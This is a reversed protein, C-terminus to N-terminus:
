KNEIMKIYNMLHPIIEKTTASSSLPSTYSDSHKGPFIHAADTLKYRDKAADILTSISYRPKKSSLAPLLDFIRVAYAINREAQAGFMNANDNVISAVRVLKHAVCRKPFKDKYPLLEGLAYPIDNRCSKYEYFKAIKSQLMKTKLTDIWSVWTKDLKEVHKKKVGYLTTVKFNICDAVSRLQKLGGISLGYAGVMTCFRDLTVYYKTKSDDIKTIKEWDESKCSSSYRLDDKLTFINGVHSTSKPETTFTMAKYKEKPIKCESLKYITFDKLQHYEMTHQRENVYLGNAIESIHTPDHYWKLVIINKRTFNHYKIYRSTTVKWNTSLDDEFITLDSGNARKNDCVREWRYGSGKARLEMLRYATSTSIANGNVVLKNWLIKEQRISTWFSDGNICQYYLKNAELYTPANKIQDAYDDILIKGAEELYSNILAITDETYELSERNATIDVDGIKVHMHLNLFLIAKNKVMDENIPYPIGGMVIYSDSKHYYSRNKQGYSLISFKVGNSLESEFISEFSKLTTNTGLIEPQPNFFPLLKFAETHFESIDNDRVAVSIEIGDPEDSLESSLLAIKGCKTEDIYACYIKKEGNHWSTIDFKDSYAFASKCGLGFSGIASNTQRRTSAGYMVYINRIDDESLGLGYDRVRFSKNGYRVPLTVEIPVDSKGAEIHADQANTCYERVVALIKNSYLKDRLINLIHASDKGSIGFMSEVMDGSREIVIEEENLKM